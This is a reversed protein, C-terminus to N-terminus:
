PTPVCLWNEVEGALSEIERNEWYLARTRLAEIYSLLAQKEAEEEANRTPLAGIVQKSEDLYEVDTLDGSDRRFMLQQIGDVDM